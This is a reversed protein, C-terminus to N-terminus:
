VRSPSVFVPMAAANSDRKPHFDRAPAARCIHIDRLCAGGGNGMVGGSCTVGGRTDARVNPAVSCQVVKIVASLGDAPEGHQCLQDTPTRRRDQEQGDPALDMRLPAGATGLTNRSPQKDTLEGGRRAEDDVAPEDGVPHKDRRIYQHERGSRESLPNKQTVDPEFRRAFFLEPV